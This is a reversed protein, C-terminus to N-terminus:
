LESIDRGLFFGEVGDLSCNIFNIRHANDRQCVEDTTRLWRPLSNNYSFTKQIFLLM